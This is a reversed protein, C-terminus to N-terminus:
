CCGAPTSPSSITRSRRIAVGTFHVGEGCDGPVPGMEECQFYPTNPVGGGLDNHVVASHSISIGTIVHGLGAALIGEGQANTVKFGSFRIGSSVMVVAAYITKTGLGPLTLQLGPTVGAEDIIAHQGKLSVPKTVVVQEHYTGPCVM